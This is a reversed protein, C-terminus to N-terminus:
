VDTVDSTVMLSADGGRTCEANIWPRRLREDTVSRASADRARCDAETRSGGGGGEPRVARRELAAGVLDPFEPNEKSREDIVEDLFDRSHAATIVLPTRM